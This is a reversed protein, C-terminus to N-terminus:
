LDGQNTIATIALGPQQAHYVLKQVESPQYVDGALEKVKSDSYIPKDVVKLYITKNFAGLASGRPGKVYHHAILFVKWGDSTKIPDGIRDIILASSFGDGNQFASTDDFLQPPTWSAVAQIYEERFKPSLCFSSAFAPTTVKMTTSGSKTIDPNTIPVAVGKDVRLKHEPTQVKPNWSLLGTTCEGIFEKITKDARFKPDKSEATFSSGDAMQVLTRPNSAIDEVKAGTGLSVLLAISSSVSTLLLLAGQLNSGQPLFKM